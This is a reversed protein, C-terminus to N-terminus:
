ATNGSRLRPQSPPPKKRREGSISLGAPSVTGKDCHPPTHPGAVCVCKQRSKVTAWVTDAAEHGPGVRARQLGLLFFFVCPSEKLSSGCLERRNILCGIHNTLCRCILIIIIPVTTMSISAWKNLLLILSDDAQLRGFKLTQGSILFDYLYM